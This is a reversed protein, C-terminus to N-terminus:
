RNLERRSLFKGFVRSWNWRPSIFSWALRMWQTIWKLYPILTRRQYPMLKGFTLVLVSEGTQRHSYLSLHTGSALGMSLWAMSLRTSLRRRWPRKGLRVWVTVTTPAPSMGLARPYKRLRKFMEKREPALHQLRERLAFLSNEEWLVAPVTDALRQKRLSPTPPLLCWM